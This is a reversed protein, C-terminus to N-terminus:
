APRRALFFAVYRREGDLLKFIQYASSEECYYYVVPIQGEPSLRALAGLYLSPSQHKGPEIAGENITWPRLVNNRVSQRPEHVDAAGLVLENGVYM